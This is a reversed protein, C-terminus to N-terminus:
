REQHLLASQRQRSVFTADVSSQCCDSKPRSLCPSQLKSSALRAHLSETLPRPDLTWAHRLNAIVVMAFRCSCMQVWFRLSRPGSRLLSTVHTAM